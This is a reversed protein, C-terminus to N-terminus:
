AWSASCPGFACCWVARAEAEPAPQPSAATMTLAAVLTLAPIVRHTM